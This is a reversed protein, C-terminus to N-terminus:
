LKGTPLVVTNTVAVAPLPWVAVQLKSTTTLSVWTGVMVQGAVMFTGAVAAPQVAITFKVVGAVASLQPIADTVM